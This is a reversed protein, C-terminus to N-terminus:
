WDVLTKGVEDLEQLFALDNKQLTSGCLHAALYKPCAHNKQFRKQLDSNEREVYGPCTGLLRAPYFEVLVVLFSVWFESWAGSLVVDRGFKSEKQCLFLLFPFLAILERM